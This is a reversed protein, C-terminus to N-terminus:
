VVSKRDTKIQLLKAGATSFTAVTDFSHAVSSSGDTMNSKYLNTSASSGTFTNSGSQIEGGRFTADTRWTNNASMWLMNAASSAGGDIRAGLAFKLAASGSAALLFSALGTSDLQMTPTSNAGHVVKVPNTGASFIFNSSTYPAASASNGFGIQMTNTNGSDYWLITGFGTNNSNRVKLAGGGSALAHQLDLLPTGSTGSIVTAGTFTKAGAITQAGTTVCGTTAAGAATCTVTVNGGVKSTSIGTGATISAIGSGGGSPRVQAISLGVCLIGLASAIAIFARKTM